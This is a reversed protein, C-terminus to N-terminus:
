SPEVAVRCRGFHAAAGSLGRNTEDASGFTASILGVGAHASAMHGGGAGGTAGGLATGFAETIAPVWVCRREEVRGACPLTEVRAVCRQEGMHGVRLLAEVHAVCRREEMHGVRLLGEGHAVCRWGGV